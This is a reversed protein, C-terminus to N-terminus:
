VICSAELLILWLPISPPRPCSRPLSFVLTRIHVQAEERDTIDQVMQDCEAKSLSNNGSKNYMGFIAKTRANQWYKDTHQTTPAMAALAFVFQSCTFTRNSAAAAAASGSTPSSSLVADGGGAGTAAVATTIAMAKSVGAGGVKAGASAAVDVAAAAAGGGAASAAADNGDEAAEGAAHLAATAAAAATTAAASSAEIGWDTPTRSVTTTLSTGDEVYSNHLVTIM